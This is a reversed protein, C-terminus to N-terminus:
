HAVSYGLTAPKNFIVAIAQRIKRLLPFRALNDM